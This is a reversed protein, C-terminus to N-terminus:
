SSHLLLCMPDGLRQELFGAITMVVIELLIPNNSQKRQEKTFVKSARIVAPSIFNGLPLYTQSYTLRLCDLAWFWSMSWFTFCHDQRCM